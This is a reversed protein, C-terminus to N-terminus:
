FPFLLFLVSIFPALFQVFYLALFFRFILLSHFPCMIHCFALSYQFLALFSLLFIFFPWFSFFFVLYYFFLASLFVCHFFFSLWLFPSFLPCSHRVLTCFPFFQFFPLFFVPRFPSHFVIIFPSFLGLFGIFSLTLFSCRYYNPRCFFTVYYSLVGFFTSFPSFFSSFVCVLSLFRFLM